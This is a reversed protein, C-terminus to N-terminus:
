AISFPQSISDTNKLKEAEPDPLQTLEIFKANEGISAKFTEIEDNSIITISCVNAKAAGFGPGSILLPSTMLFTRLLPQFNLALKM